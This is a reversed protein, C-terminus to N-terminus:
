VVNCFLNHKIDANVFAKVIEEDFQRGANILIENIAIDHIAAPRYPRTSMIADYTDAVTIIRSHLPIDEGSLGYPYGAGDYSEHHHMIAPLIPEFHKIPKLIEVGKQSHSKIINMEDESLPGKKGLVFDSIGIKGIDHLMAAIHLHRKETEGLTLASAILDCYHSVRKCHGYTGLDKKEIAQALSSLVDLQNKKLEETRESVKTELIMLATKKQKDLERKKDVYEISKILDSIFFPKTIFDSAGKKLSEVALDASGHATIIVFYLEPNAASIQQMLEVGTVPGLFQDLFVLDFDDESILKLAEDPGSATKVYYDLDELLLSFTDLIRKEDDVFLIRAGASM